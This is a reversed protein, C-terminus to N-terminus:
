STVMLLLRCPMIDVVCYHLVHIQVSYQCGANTAHLSSPLAHLTASSSMRLHLALFHLQTWLVRGCAVLSPGSHRCQRRIRSLPRNPTRLPRNFNWTSQHDITCWCAARSKECAGSWCVGANRWIETWSVPQHCWFMQCCLYSSMVSPEAAAASM